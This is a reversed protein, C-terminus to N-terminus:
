DDIAFDLEPEESPPGQAEVVVALWDLPFWQPDGKPWRQIPNKRKKESRKMRAIIANELIGEARLQTGKPMDVIAYRSREQIHLVEGEVGDYKSVRCNIRVIDLVKPNM